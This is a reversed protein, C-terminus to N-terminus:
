SYKNKNVYDLIKNLRDESYNKHNPYWEHLSQNYKSCNCSVCAPIINDKTYNGGKTVPIIHEQELKNKEGCYACSHDFHTLCVKWDSYKFDSILSNMRHRRLANKFLFKEPNKKYAIRELERSRERNEIQYAKMREKNKQYYKNHYKRRKERNNRNYIRGKERTEDRKLEKRIREKEIFLEKNKQYYAKSYDSICGKCRGTLKEGSKKFHNLNNPLSEFCSTCHKM